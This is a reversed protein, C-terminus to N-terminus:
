RAFIVAWITDELTLFLTYVVYVGEPLGLFLIAGIESFVLEYQALPDKYKM